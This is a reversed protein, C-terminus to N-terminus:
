AEGCSGLSRVALWCGALVASADARSAAYGAIVVLLMDLAEDEDEAARAANGHDAPDDTHAAQIQLVLAAVVAARYAAVAEQVADADAIM